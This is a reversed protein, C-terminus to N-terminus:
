ARGSRKVSGKGNRVEYDNWFRESREDSAREADRHAVDLNARAREVDKSSPMKSFLGM